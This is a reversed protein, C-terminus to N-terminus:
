AIIGGHEEVIRRSIGLGLGTGHAGKTTFFPEWIRALVEAPIGCGDDEVEVATHAGDRSIGVRVRGGERTAQLANGILNLVVQLIRDSSVDASAALDNPERVVTRTHMRKDFRLIALAEDVIPAIPQAVRDASTRTAGGRAFEKITEVM